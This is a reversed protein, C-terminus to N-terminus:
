KILSNNLCMIIIWHIMAVLNERENWIKLALLKISLKASFCPLLFVVYSGGSLCM